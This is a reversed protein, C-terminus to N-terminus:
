ATQPAIKLETLTAHLELYDLSEAGTEPDIKLAEVRDLTRSILTNHWGTTSKDKAAPAKMRAYVPPLLKADELTKIAAIYVGMGKSHEIWSQATWKAMEATAVKFFPEPRDSPVDIPELEEDVGSSDDEPAIAAPAPKPAEAPKTAEVPKPPAVPKVPEAPKVAEVPKVPEPAKAAPKPPATVTPRQVRTPEAPKPATPADAPTVPIEDIQDSEKINLGFVKGLTKAARKLADTEAAKITREMLDGKSQGQKDVEASASVGVGDRVLKHESGDEARLHITLRVTAKATICFGGKTVRQNNEYTEVSTQEDRIMECDLTERSWGDYGFIRNLQAIVYRPDVYAFEKNGGGKRKLLSGKPVPQNLAEVQSDTLYKSKPLAIPAGIDDEQRDEPNDNM